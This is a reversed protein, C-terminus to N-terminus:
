QSFHKDLNAQVTHLASWLPKEWQQSPQFSSSSTLYRILSWVDAECQLSRITLHDIYFSHKCAHDMCTSFRLFMCTHTYAHDMYSVIIFFHHKENQFLSASTWADIWLDATKFDIGQLALFVFASFCLLFKFSFESRSFNLIQFVGILKNLFKQDLRWHRMANKSNCIHAFSEQVLTGEM